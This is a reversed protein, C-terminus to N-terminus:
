HDPAAPASAREEAVPAPWHRPEVALRLLDAVDRRTRREYADAPKSALRIDDPDRLIHL